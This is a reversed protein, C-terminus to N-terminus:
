AAKSKVRTIKSAADSVAHRNAEFMSNTQRVFKSFMDVGPNSGGAATADFGFPAFFPSLLQTVQQQSDTVIEQVNRFYEAFQEMAPGRVASQVNELDGVGNFQVLNNSAALGDKLATRAFELNLAALRQIGSFAIQSVSLLAATDPRAARIQDTTNTQM